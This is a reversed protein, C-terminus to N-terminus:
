TVESSKLTSVVLASDSCVCCDTESLDGTVKVWLGALFDEGGGVQAGEFVGERGGALCTDHSDTRRVVEESHLITRLSQHRRQTVHQEVWLLCHSILNTSWLLYFSYM